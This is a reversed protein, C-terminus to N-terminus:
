LEGFFIQGLDGVAHFPMQVFRQSLDDNTTTLLRDILRSPKQFRSVAM